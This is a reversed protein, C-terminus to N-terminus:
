QPLRGDSSSSKLYTIIALLDEDDLVGEYGPMGPDFGAALHANPYLIDSRLSDDVEATPISRAHAFLAAISPAARSDQALHCQACGQSAFLLKGRSALSTGDSIRSWRAYDGQAMVIVEGAMEAHDAGCYEACVLRYVGPETAKFWTRTYRGPLLDQKARFAPVFFSHIVDQSIMVLRIPVGVPVHLENIERRGSPHQFKWMWQKAVVHVEMASAPPALSALRTSSAWWFIFIFAFATAVTWGIEIERSLLAGLPQRTTESGRRYAFSFGVVMALLVAFIVGSVICLTLFIGDIGAAESSAQPLGMM